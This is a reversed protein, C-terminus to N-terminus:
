PNTIKITEIGYAKADQCEQSYTDDGRGEETHSESRAAYRGRTQPGEMAQRRDDSRYLGSGCRRAPGAGAADEVM